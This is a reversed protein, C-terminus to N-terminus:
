VNPDQFLMQLVQEMRTGRSGKFLILDGEGARSRLVNAMERQDQFAMADRPAKGGTRAGSIVNEAYKGYALILDAGQQVAIRGIKYHEANSSHGLELMDGLVAIRKGGCARTGLLTLAAQMSEPGANYCDEIITMGGREYIRQRMGTNQFAALAQRIKEDPIGCLLAVTIAALANQVLHRGEVPLQVGFSAGLGRVEFAVGGPVERVNTAFVDCEPNEMGFYVTKFQMAAKQKWLLPEDGNFVATGGPTLGQLIELKAKLIGERSGLFEIHMTGINTIVAVNPQAIKTLYAMEGFHNMGLELVAADCDPSIATITMPLGINNNHNGETKATRYTTALIAALMEKTTTKGVSGTIGIFKTNHLSQRYGAAIQGFALKTDPVYLAPLGAPLERSALVCAAGRELAQAAYDHGDVREGTLAIFLNGPQVKRSDTEVGSITRGALAPEAECGIWQAVQGVTTSLM